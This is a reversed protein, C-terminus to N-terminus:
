FIFIYKQIYSWNIEFDFVPLDKYVIKLFKEEIAEAENEVKSYMEEDAVPDLEPKLFEKFEKAIHERM